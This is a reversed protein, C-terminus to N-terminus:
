VSSRNCPRAFRIIAAAVATVLVFTPIAWSVGLGLWYSWNVGNEDRITMSLNDSWTVYLVAAGVLAAPVLGVLSPTVLTSQWRRM